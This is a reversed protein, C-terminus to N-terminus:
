FLQFFHRPKVRPNVPRAFVSVGFILLFFVDVCFLSSFPEFGVCSSFCGSTFCDSVSSCTLPEAATVVVAVTTSLFPFFFDLFSRLFCFFFVCFGSACDAAFVSFLLVTAFGPCSFGSESGSKVSDASSSISRGSSKPITMSGSSGNGESKGSILLPLPFIKSSKNLLSLSLQSSEFIQRPVNFM